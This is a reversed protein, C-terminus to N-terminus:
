AALRARVYGASVDQTAVVGSDHHHVAAHPLMPPTAGVGPLLVIDTTRVLPPFTESDLSAGPRRATLTPRPQSTAVEEAASYSRSAEAIMTSSRPLTVGSSLPKTKKLLRRLGSPETTCVPSLRVPSPSPSSSTIWTSRVATGGNTCRITKATEM